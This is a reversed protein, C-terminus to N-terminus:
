IQELQVPWPLLYVRSNSQHIIPAIGHRLIINVKMTYTYMYKRISNFSPNILGKENIDDLGAPLKGMLNKVAKSKELSAIKDRHATSVITINNDWLAM